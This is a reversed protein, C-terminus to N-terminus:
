GTRALRVLRLGDSGVELLYGHRRLWEAAYVELDADTSEAADVELQARWEEPSLDGPATTTSTAAAVAAREADLADRTQRAERHLAALATFSDCERARKVDSAVARLKADLWRIRGPASLTPPTKTSAPKSAM